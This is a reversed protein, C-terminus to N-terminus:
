FVGAQEIAGITEAMFFRTTLIWDGMNPSRNPSSGDELNVIKVPVQIMSEDYDILFLEFFRNAQKPRVTSSLLQDVDYSCTNLLTTGITM